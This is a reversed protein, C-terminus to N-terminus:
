NPSVILQREIKAWADAPMTIKFRSSRSAKSIEGAAPRRRDQPYCPWSNRCWTPRAQWHHHVNHSVPGPPPCDPFGRFDTTITIMPKSITGAPTIRATGIQSRLAGGASPPYAQARVRASPFPSRPKEPLGREDRPYLRSQLAGRRSPRYPWRDVRRPRGPGPPNRIRPHHEYRPPQRRTMEAFTPVTDEHVAHYRISISAASVRGPASRAAAAWAELQGAWARWLEAARPYGLGDADDAQDRYHHALTIARDFTLAEIDCDAGGGGFGSEVGTESATRWIGAIDRFLHKMRGGGRGRDPRGPMPAWAYIGDIQELSEADFWHGHQYFAKVPEADYKSSALVRSDEEPSDTEFLLHTWELVSVTDGEVSRVM